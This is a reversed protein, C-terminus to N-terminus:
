QEGCALIRDIAGNQNLKELHANIRILLAANGKPIGTGMSSTTTPMFSRVIRTHPFEGPKLHYAIVLQDALGNQILESNTDDILHKVHDYLKVDIFGTKQPANVFM